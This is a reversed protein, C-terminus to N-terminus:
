SVDLNIGPQANFFSVEADDPRWINHDVRDYKGPDLYGEGLPLTYMWARRDLIDTRFKRREYWNPHGELMDLAALGEEHTAWVEGFITTPVADNTHVVGPFGGFSMMGFPGTITDYGLCKAGVRQLLANNGMNRKLSGYVFVRVMGNDDAENAGGQTSPLPSPLEKKTTTALVQKDKAKSTSM